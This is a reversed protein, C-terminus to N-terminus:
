RRSPDIADYKGTTNDGTVNGTWHNNQWLGLVEKITNDFEELELQTEKVRQASMTLEKMFITVDKNQENVEIIKHVVSMLNNVDERFKHILDHKSM